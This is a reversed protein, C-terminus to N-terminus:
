PGSAPLALYSMTIEHLGLPLEFVWTQEKIKTAAYPYGTASTGGFDLGLKEGSKLEFLLSLGNTSFGYRALDPAGGETWLTATLEGFRHAAEEVALDNIVGQSGAALSWSNTGHRLLERTRGGQRITLRVLDNVSFKWLRRERFQTVKTPLQQYDAWRVAYVPNEDARRVFIGNENTAGFSLEAVVVNTPGSANTVASRFIVQRSPTVLGYKPLDPETVADQFQLIQLGSLGNVFDSVLGADVPFDQGPARWVEGAERQLTFPDAGRVEIQDVPQALTLLRRERFKNYPESWPVALDKSVTVVAGFDQRRAYLLNANTAPSKGFQLWAVTNTGLGLVLDLSAPELGFSELEVKPDDSVFQLVRLAVLRQFLESLRQLDVRARVPQTMSWLKNTGDYQLEIVAAGNTVTVRDLILNRADVLSTDRWDAVTRPLTKLWDAPVVFVGEVGAVQLYVQDGPATRNGVLIQRRADRSQLRLTVQPSDFGFEADPNARRRLEAAPIRSAPTLKELAALLSEISVSQAPYVLPRTLLWVANTREVRIEPQGAPRVQLSTVTGAKFDALLGAPEPAPKRGFQQLLVILLLLAAAVGTWLWTHKPNM